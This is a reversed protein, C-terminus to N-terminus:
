VSQIPKKERVLLGGRRRLGSFPQRRWRYGPPQVRMINIGSSDIVVGTSANFSALETSWPQTNDGLTFTPQSFTSTTQILYACGVGFANGPSGGVNQDLVFSQDISTVTFSGPLGVGAVVLSNNNTPSFGTAVQATGSTATGQDQKDFPSSKVGSFAMVAGCAFAGAGAITFTQSASVVISSPDVYYTDIAVVGSDESTLQIWTNSNSDSITPTSGTLRSVYAVLFNSTSTNIGVTTVGSSGSTYQGSVSVTHAITM